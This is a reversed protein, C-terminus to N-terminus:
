WSIVHFSCEGSGGFVASKNNSPTKVASSKVASLPVSSSFSLRDANKIASNSSAGKGDASKRLSLKVASSLLEMKDPGSVSGTSMRGGSARAACSGCNAGFINLVLPTKIGRIMAAAAEQQALAAAAASAKSREFHKLDYEIEERLTPDFQLM